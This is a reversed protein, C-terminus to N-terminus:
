SSVEKTSEGMDCVAGVFRYCPTLGLVTSLKSAYAIADHWSVTEVPCDTGCARGGGEDSFYSPNRGMLTAFDGQTVEYRMM